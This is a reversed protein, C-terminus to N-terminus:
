KFTVTLERGGGRKAILRSSKPVSFTYSKGSAGSSLETVFYEGGINSLKLYSNASIPQADTVLPLQLLVKGAGDIRLQPQRLAPNPLTIEYDGAPLVSNGWHAETALHFKGQGAGQMLASGTFVAFAIFTLVRM